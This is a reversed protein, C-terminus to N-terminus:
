FRSFHLVEFSIKKQWFNKGPHVTGNSNERSNNPKEDFPLREFATGPLLIVQRAPSGQAFWRKICKRGFPPSGNALSLFDYALLSPWGKTITITPDGEQSSWSKRGWRKEMYVSQSAWGPWDPWPASIILCVEYVSGSTSEALFTGKKEPCTREM